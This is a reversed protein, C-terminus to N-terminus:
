HITLIQFESIALLFPFFLIGSTGIVYFLFLGAVVFDHLLKLKFLWHGDMLELLFLLISPLLLFSSVLMNTLMCPLDWADGKWRNSQDVSLGFVVLNIAFELLRWLINGRPSFIVFCVDYNHVYLSIDFKIICSKGWSMNLIHTHVPTSWCVLKPPTAWIYARM